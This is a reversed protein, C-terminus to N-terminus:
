QVLRSLTSGDQSVLRPNNDTSPNYRSVTISPNKEEPDLLTPQSFLDERWVMSMDGCVEAGNYALALTRLCSAILLSEEILPKRGPRLRMLIDEQVLTCQTIITTTIPEYWGRWRANVDHFQRICSTLSRYPHPRAAAWAPSIDLDKIKVDQKEYEMKVKFVIGDCDPLLWEDSGIGPLDPLCLTLYRIPGRAAYGFPGVRSSM